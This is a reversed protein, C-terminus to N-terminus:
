LLQKLYDAIGNLTQAIIEKKEPTIIDAEQCTVGQNTGWTIKQGVKTCRNPDSGSLQDYDFYVRIPKREESDTNEYEVVITETDLLTPRNSYSPIESESQNDNCLSLIAFLFLQCM